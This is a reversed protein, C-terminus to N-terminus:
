FMFFLINKKKTQKDFITKAGEKLLKFDHITVYINFKLIM